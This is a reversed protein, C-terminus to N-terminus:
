QFVQSRWLERGTEAPRVGQAEAVDIAVGRRVRARLGTMIKRQDMIQILDRMVQAPSGKEARIERQDLDPVTESQDKVASVRIRAVVAGAVIM